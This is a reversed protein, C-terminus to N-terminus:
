SIIITKFTFQELYGENFDIVILIGLICLFSKEGEILEDIIVLTENM